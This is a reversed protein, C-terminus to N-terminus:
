FNYKRTRVFYLVLVDRHCLLKFSNMTVMGFTSLSCHLPGAYHLLLPVMEISHEVSFVNRCALLFMLKPAIFEIQMCCQKVRQPIM